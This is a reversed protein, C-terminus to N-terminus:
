APEYKKAGLTHWSQLVNLPDHSSHFRVHEIQKHQSLQSFQDNCVAHCGHELHGAQSKNDDLAYVTKQTVRVRPHTGM